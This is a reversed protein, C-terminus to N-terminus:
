KDEDKKGREAWMADAVTDLEDKPAENGAAGGSGNNGDLVKGAEDSDAQRTEIDRRNFAASNYEANLHRTMDAGSEIAGLAIDMAGCGRGMTIHAMVRDREDRAGAQFVAAYLDPYKAKLEEISMTQKEKTRSAGGVDATPDTEHAAAVRVAAQSPVKDIMGRAKADRAVFVSGRGFDENVTKTDFEKGSHQTRGRAIADVFLEHISDLYERITAKGEDTTPDPRKNPAETSTVDVIEDDVWFSAVVGISGFESAPSDAEIRGATAAIAYAASDARSARVTLPKGFREIAALTEFLGDVSGGPSSINMTGRKINPDADAAALAAQIQEYTTNGGGFLWAFFDPKKTLIGEVRIEAVDGAVSMNRPLNAAAEADNQATLYGARETATGIGGKQAAERMARATNQELLWHM